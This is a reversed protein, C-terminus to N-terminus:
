KASESLQIKRTNEFARDKFFREGAAVSAESVCVGGAQPEPQQGAQLHAIHRQELYAAHFDAFIVAFSM